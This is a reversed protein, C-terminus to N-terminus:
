SNEKDNGFLLKIAEARPTGNRMQIIQTDVEDSADKDSHVELIEMEPAATLALNADGETIPIVGGTDPMGIVMRVVGTAPDVEIAVAPAPPKADRERAYVGAMNLIKDAASLQTAHDETDLKTVVTGQFPFFKTVKAELKQELKNFAKQLLERPPRADELLLARMREVNFAVSDRALQRM